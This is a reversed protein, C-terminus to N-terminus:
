GLPIFGLTDATVQLSPESYTVFKAAPDGAPTDLSNTVANPTAAAFCGVGACTGDNYAISNEVTQYGTAVDYTGGGSGSTGAAGTNTLTLVHGATLVGLTDAASESITSLKFNNADASMQTYFLDFHYDSAANLPDPDLTADDIGDNDSDADCADGAGDSDADAFGPGNAINPCNDVLVGEGIEGAVTPVNQDTDPRGDDDTDCADGFISAGTIEQGENDTTPCNDPGNGAITQISDNDHNNSNIIPNRDDTDVGGQGNDNRDEGDGDQDADCIDGLDDVVVSANNFQGQDDIEFDLNEQGPNAATTANLLGGNFADPDGVVCNDATGSGEPHTPNFDDGGAGTGGNDDWGDGDVDVAIGSDVDDVDAASPGGSGDGLAGDGDADNDCADGFADNDENEQGPNAARALDINGGLDDPTNLVCNDSGDDVGDNDDDVGVNSDYPAADDLNNAGDGDFDSPQLNNAVTAPSSPAAATEGNLVNQLTDGLRGDIYTGAAVATGNIEDVIDQELNTLVPTSDGTDGPLEDRLLIALVEDVVEQATAANPGAVVQEVLEAFAELAARYNATAQQEAPNNSDLIPSVATPGFLRTTAVDMGFGFVSVVDTAAADLLGLIEAADDPDTARMRALEFAMTTFATAYFRPRPTQAFDTPSVVTVVQDVVPFQGTTLDTTEGPVALFQLLFPGNGSDSVLEADDILGDAGTRLGAEVLTDATNNLFEALRLVRFSANVLPGDAGLASITEPAIQCDPNTPLCGSSDPGDSSSSGGCAALIGTLFGTAAWKALNSVRM